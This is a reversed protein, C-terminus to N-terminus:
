GRLIRKVIEQGCLLGVIREKRIVPLCDRKNRTLQFVAEVISTEPGLQVPPQVMIREVALTDEREALSELPAFSELFRLSQVTDTYQPLGARLLDLVSVEGVFVGERDVM